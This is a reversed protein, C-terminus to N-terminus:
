SVNQPQINECAELKKLINDDNEVCFKDYFQKMMKQEKTPEQPKVTTPAPAAPNCLASAAFCVVMILAIM